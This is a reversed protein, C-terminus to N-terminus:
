MSMIDKEKESAISDVEKIKKDTLKQVDDNYSKLDDETLESSKQMKKLEDNADRRVNRIAIKADEAFGKVKKALEKRREQTLAPVNLRIIKGDNNPTMGLNAENIAHEIDKLINQEYPKIALQTPEPITVQAIQNIPTPSGWYDIRINDLMASNARGTRLVALERKLSDISKDMKTEANKLVQM